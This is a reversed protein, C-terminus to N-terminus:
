HVKAFQEHIQAFKKSLVVHTFEHSYIARSFNLLGCFNKLSNSTSTAIKDMWLVM